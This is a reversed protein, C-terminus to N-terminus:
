RKDGPEYKHQLSMGEDYRAWIPICAEKKSIYGAENYTLGLCLVYRRTSVDFKNFLLHDPKAGIARPWIRAMYLDDLTKLQGALPSFYKHVYELQQAAHLLAMDESQKGLAMCTDPMWQLLGVAPLGATNRINARFSGGTYYAMLAMLYDPEIKLDKCILVVQSRFLHSVSRGWCLPRDIAFGGSGPM